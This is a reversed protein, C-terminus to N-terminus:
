SPPSGHRFKLPQLYREIFQLLQPLALRRTQGQADIRTPQATFQAAESPLLGPDIEDFYRHQNPQEPTNQGGGM